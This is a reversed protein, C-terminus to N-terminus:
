KKEPIYYSGSDFKTLGYEKIINHKNERKITDVSFSEIIELPSFTQGEPFVVLDLSDVEVEIKYIIQEGIKITTTDISSTIQGNSFWSFLVTAWLLVLTKHTTKIARIKSIRQYM